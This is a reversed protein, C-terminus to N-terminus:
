SMSPYPPPTAVEGDLVLYGYAALHPALLELSRQQEEPTLVQHWDSVAAGATIDRTPSSFPTREQQQMLCFGEVAPDFDIDLFAFLRQAGALDNGVFDEYRLEFYREANIFGFNCGINVHNIWTNHTDEFSAWPEGDDHRRRLLSAVVDRGDRIVHVFRAEPFVTAIMELCGYNDPDAYHPNKDGWFPRGPELETYFDRVIDPLTARLHRIFQERHSFVFQDLHPLVNMARHLWAFVRAEHSVYVHPHQNLLEQVYTTGSRPAGFVVIPDRRRPPTM